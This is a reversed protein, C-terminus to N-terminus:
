RVPEERGTGKREQATEGQPIKTRAQHTGARRGGLLGRQSIEPHCPDDKRTSDHPQHGAHDARIREEQHGTRIQNRFGGAGQEGAVRGHGDTQTTERGRGRGEQTPGQRHFYNKHRIEERGTATDQSFCLLNHWEM